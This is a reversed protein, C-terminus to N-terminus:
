IWQWTRKNRYSYVAHVSVGALEAVKKAALEPYEKVKRMASAKYRNMGHKEGKAKEMVFMENSEKKSIWRLNDARNNGKDGDIHQVIKYKNPNPCFAEAVLRHVYRIEGLIFVRFFFRSKSKPALLNLKHKPLFNFVRGDDLVCYQAGVNRWKAGTFSAIYKVDEKAEKKM